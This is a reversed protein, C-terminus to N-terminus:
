FTVLLFKNGNSSSFKKALQTKILFLFQNDEVLIFAQFNNIINQLVYKFVLLLLLM